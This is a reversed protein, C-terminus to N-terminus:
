QDRALTAGARDRLEIGTVKGHAKGAFDFVEVREVINLFFFRALHARERVISDGSRVFRESIAAQLDRILVGLADASVDAAADAVEPADLAFVQLQQVSSRSGDRGKEYNRYERVHRCALDRDSVARFS